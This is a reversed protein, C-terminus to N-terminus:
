RAKGSKRAPKRATKDHVEEAKEVVQDATEQVKDIQKKTKSSQKALQDTQQKLRKIPAKQTVHYEPLCSRVSCSLAPYCIRTDPGISPHHFLSRDWDRLSSSLLGFIYPHQMLETKDSAM